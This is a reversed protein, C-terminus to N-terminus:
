NNREQYFTDTQRQVLGDAQKAATKFESIEGCSM